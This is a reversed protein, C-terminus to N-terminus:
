CTAWGLVRIPRRSNNLLSVVIDTKQGVKCDEPQFDTEEFALSPGLSRAFYYSMALGLLAAGALVLVISVIKSAM